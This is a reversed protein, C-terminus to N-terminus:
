RSASGTPGTTPNANPTAAAVPEPEPTNTTVTVPTVVVGTVDGVIALKKKKGVTGRARRTAEAKKVRATLQEATLPKPAKRPKLGFDALVEPSNGFTGRVFSVVASLFVELAPGKVREDALKTEMVIRATNVDSRLTALATLQAEVQAPSFAGGGVTLVPVASLYKQIGAVLKTALDAQQNISMKKGSM